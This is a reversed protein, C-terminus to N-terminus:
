PRTAVGIFAPQDVRQAGTGFRAVLTQRMTAAVAGWRAEGMMRRMLVLPAMSRLLSTWLDDLSPSTVVNMVEEVRIDRFGAAGLEVEFDAPQGLPPRTDPLTLGASKMGAVLAAMLPVRESPPWSSIAVRGGPRLVRALEALGRARDAFFILGFMSFAADFSADDYPLAQGDGLRSVVNAPALNQLRAIMEPAFDLADVRGATRAALLTLTGPGCAVDLIRGGPPPGALRLAAEAYTKFLPAAVDAYGDAVLNWPLPTALPNEM